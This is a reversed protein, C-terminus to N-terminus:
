VVKMKKKESNQNPTKQKRINWIVSKIKLKM